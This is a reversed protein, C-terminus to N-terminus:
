CLTGRFATDSMDMRALVMSKGGHNPLQLAAIHPCVSVLEVAAAADCHLQQLQM